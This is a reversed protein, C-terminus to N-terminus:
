HGLVSGALGPTAPETLRVVFTTWTTESEGALNSASIGLRYTGPERLAVRISATRRHDEVHDDWVRWRRTGDPNLRQLQLHFSVTPGRGEDAHTWRAALALPEGRDVTLRAGDAPRVWAPAGPPRSVEPARRIVDECVACFLESRSARMRCTKEPRWVGQSYYGGGEFATPVIDAWRAGTPELTLNPCIAVQWREDAPVTGEYEAYEDSLNYLAHGLEHIFAETDISPIRIRRGDEPVDANPRVDDPSTVEDGSALRHGRRASRLRERPTKPDNTPALRVLVVVLDVDPALQAAATDAAADDSELSGDAAVHSRFATDRAPRGARWPVGKERSSVFAFHFNFDSGERMPRAAQEVRVRRALRKADAVFLDRENAQYGDGLIVVDTARAWDESRLDSTLEKVSGTPEQAPALAPLLALLLLALAARM